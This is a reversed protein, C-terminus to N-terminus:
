KSFLFAHNELSELEQFRGSNEFYQLKFGLSKMKRILDEDTVGWEWPLLLNQSNPDLIPKAEDLPKRKPTPINKRREEEPLDPLRISTESATWQPNHILFMRARGAYTELIEEWGPQEGHGQHVLVEFLFLADVTGVREAVARDAFNGDVIEFNPYKNARDKIYGARVDVLVGREPRYKDLTFFSYGGDVRGIGGLDAFSKAGFREFALDMLRRKDKLLVGYRERLRAEEARNAKNPNGELRAIRREHEQSKAELRDLRPNGREGRPKSRRQEIRTGLRRVLAAATDKARM